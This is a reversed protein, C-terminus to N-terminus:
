KAEFEMYLIEISTEIHHFETKEKWSGSFQLKFKSMLAYWIRYHNLIEKQMLLHPFPSFLFFFFWQYLQSPKLNKCQVQSEVMQLGELNPFKSPPFFPFFSLFFSYSYIHAYKSENGGIEAMVHVVSSSFDHFWVTKILKDAHSYQNRDDNKGKCTLEPLDIVHWNENECCRWGERLFLLIYKEILFYFSLICVFYPISSKFIWGSM